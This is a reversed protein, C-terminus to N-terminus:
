VKCLELFSEDTTTPSLGRVYVNHSHYHVPQESQQQNTSLSPHRKHQQQRQDTSLSYPGPLPQIFQHPPSGPVSATGTLVPSLSPFHQHPPLMYAAHLPPSLTPQQQQQYQFTPSFPPSTPNVPPSQPHIAPSGPYSQYGSGFDPYYQVSFQPSMPYMYAAYTAAPDNPDFGNSTAAHHHHHHVDYHHSPDIYYPPYPPSTPTLLGSGNNGEVNQATNHKSEAAKKETATDAAAQSPTSASSNAM